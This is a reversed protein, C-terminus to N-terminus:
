WWGFGGTCLCSSGGGCNRCWCVRFGSLGMGLDGCLGIGYLWYLVGYDFECRALGILGWVWFWWVLGVGVVAFGLLGTCAFLIELGCDGCDCVRFGGLVGLVVLGINCWGM